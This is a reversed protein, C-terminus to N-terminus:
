KSNFYEKCNQIFIEKENEPIQFGCANPHGGFKASTGEFLIPLIEHLNLNQITRVSGSITSREYKQHMSCCFEVNLEFRAKESLQRNYSTRGKHEILIYKKNEQSEFKQYSKQLIKDYKKYYLSFDQFPSYNASNIHGLIDFLSLEKIEKIFQQSQRYDKFIFDFFQKLLGIQTTYSLETIIEANETLNEQYYFPHNSVNEKVLNLKELDFPKFLEKIENSGIDIDSFLSTTYFDSISGILAQLYMEKNEHSLIYAWFTIPRSDNENFLLPNTYFINKFKKLNKEVHKNIVHHDLILINEQGYKESLTELTSEEIQPTDVFLIHTAFKPINEIAVEQSYEEKSIFHGGVVNRFTKKLILYSSLGDCDNDHFIFTKHQKNELISQIYELKHAFKSSINHKKTNINM